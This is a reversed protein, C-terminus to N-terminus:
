TWKQKLKEFFFNCTLTLSFCIAGDCWQWAMYEWGGYSKLLWHSSYWETYLIKNLCLFQNHLNLLLLITAVHWFFLWPLFLIRWSRCFFWSIKNTLWLFNVNQLFTLSFQFFFGESKFPSHLPQTSWLKNNVNGTVLRHFKVNASFNRVFSLIGAERRVFLTDLIKEFTM